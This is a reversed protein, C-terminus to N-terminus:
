DGKRRRAKNKKKKLKPAYEKSEQGKKLYLNEAKLGSYEYKVFADPSKLIEIQM